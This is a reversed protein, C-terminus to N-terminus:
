SIVSTSDFNLRDIFKDPTFRGIQGEEPTRVCVKNEDRERQGVVLIYDYGEEEAYQIRKGIPSGAAFSFDAITDTNQTIDKAVEFGYPVVDESISLVVVRTQQEEIKLLKQYIYDFAGPDFSGDVTEVIPESSEEASSAFLQHLELLELSGNDETYQGKPEVYVVVADEASDINSLRQDFTLEYEYSISVRQYYATALRYILDARIQEDESFPLVIVAEDKKEDENVEEEVGWGRSCYELVATEDDLCEEFSTNFPDDYIFDSDEHVWDSVIDFGAQKDITSSHQNYFERAERQRHELEQEAASLSDKLVEVQSETSEAAKQLTQFEDIIAESYPRKM